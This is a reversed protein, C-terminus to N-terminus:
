KAPSVTVRLPVIYTAVFGASAHFTLLGGSHVGCYQDTVDVQLAGAGAGAGVGAGAGAGAGAGDGAGLGAGAGEHLAGVHSGFM